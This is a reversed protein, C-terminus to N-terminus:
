GGTGAGDDGSLAKQKEPSVPLVMLPIAFSGAPTSLLAVHHMGTEAVLQAYRENFRKMKAQLYKAKQEPNLAIGGETASM